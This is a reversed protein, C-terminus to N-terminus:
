FIRVMLNLLLGFFFMDGSQEYTRPYMQTPFPVLSTTSYNVLSWPYPKVLGKSSDGLVSALNSSIQPRKFVGDELFQHAQSHLAVHLRRKEHILAGISTKGNQILFKFGNEIPTSTTAKHTSLKIDFQEVITTILQKNTDNVDQLVQHGMYRLVIREIAALDEILDGVAHQFSKLTVLDPQQGFWLNEAQSQGPPGGFGKILVVHGGEKSSTDKINSHTGCLTRMDTPIPLDSQFASTMRQSNPASSGTSSDTSM